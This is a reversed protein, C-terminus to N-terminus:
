ECRGVGVVVADDAALFIAVAHDLHEVAGVRVSVSPHRLVLGAVCVAALELRRVRVLISLQLHPLNQIKSRPIELLVAGIM